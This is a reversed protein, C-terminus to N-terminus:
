IFIYDIFSDDKNGKLKYDKTNDKIYVRVTNIVNRLELM